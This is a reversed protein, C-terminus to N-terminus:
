HRALLADGGAEAFAARSRHSEEQARELVVAFAATDRVPELWPDIALWAAHHFGGIVCADLWALGEEHEGVHVLQRAVYMQAECGVYGGALFERVLRLCAARDGDFAALLSRILLQGGGVSMGQAVRTRLEAIADERRGLADLAAPALYGVDDGVTELCRLYDRIQFYTQTVSTAITPDLRRAEQHFTISEDALGCFRCAYVLGAYIEPAGSRLRARGLLRLMAARSLGMDSELLAYVGHAIDLDPNLALARDLADKALEMHETPRQEYKSLIRYTRGLQAWAPAYNADLSLSEKYRAVAEALRRRDRVLENARLFTAYATPSAPADHVLRERERPSLRDSMASVINQVIRDHLEIINRASGEFSSSHLLAGGPVEVLQATMRMHEGARFLSGTVAVDVDAESALRQLDPAPGFRAAVLGSRVVVSDLQALTAAVSEPLSACLFEADEDPRLARFPLVIVRRTARATVTTGTMPRRIDRLAAAFAMASEFRQAPDKSLARRIVRDIAAIAPDGTLAPPRGHLVAHAIALPSAGPFAPQGALMEFLVAGAAFLDSRHDPPAGELVEPAMYGPTGIMIGAQTLNSTMAVTAATEASPPRALGFDLIKLGRATLMLNAPKLDRHLLGQAHIADVADLLTLAIDIAEHVPMAGRSLRAALTEGELLEMAIYLHAGEEGVDFVQCIAPHRVAAAARAERWLRLVTDTATDRRLLKLAVPRELREDRALVVTGM